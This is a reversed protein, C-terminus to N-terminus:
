TYIMRKCYKDALYVEEFHKSMNWFSGLHVRAHTQSAYSDLLARCTLQRACVQSLMACLQQARLLGFIVWGADVGGLMEFPAHLGLAGIWCNESNIHRLRGSAYACCSFCWMPRGVLCVSVASVWLKCCCGAALMLVGQEPQPFRGVVTELAWAAAPLAQQAVPRVMMVELGQVHEALM